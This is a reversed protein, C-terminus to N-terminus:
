LEIASRRSEIQTANQLVEVQDKWAFDRATLTDIHDHHDGDEFLQVKKKYDNM